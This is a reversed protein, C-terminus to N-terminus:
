RVAEPSPCDGLPDDPTPDPGPNPFPEPPQTGSVFLYNLLYVPDTIDVQGDDNADAADLCVPVPGGLFLSNLLFVADSIDLRLDSNSNGRVFFGGTRAPLVMVSGDILTPEIPSKGPPASFINSILNPSGYTRHRNLLPTSGTPAGPIAEYELTALLTQDPIPIPAVTIPFTIDFLVFIAGYGEDNKQLLYFNLDEGAHGSIFASPEGALLRLRSSDHGVAMSFGTVDCAAKGRIPIRVREGSATEGAGVELVAPGVCDGDQGRAPFSAAGAAALLPVIGRFLARFLARFLGTGIGERRGPFKRM